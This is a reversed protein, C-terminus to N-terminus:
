LGTDAYITKTDCVRDTHRFPSVIRRPAVDFLFQSTVHVPHMHLSNTYIISLPEDKYLYLPYASHNSNQM